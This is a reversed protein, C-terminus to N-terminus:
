GQRPVAARVLDPSFTAIWRAGKSRGPIPEQRIKIPGTLTRIAEAAVPIEQNLTERLTSLYSMAKDLSLPKVPKRNQREADRIKVLLENVEKQLEKIRRDYATCLEKRPEDEVRAVLEQDEGGANSGESEDASSEGAAQPSGGGPRRQGQGGIGQSPSGHPDCWAFLGAPEEIIKVSKSSTLSCGHTGKNGSLCGMQKYQPTSRILKLEGDNEGHDRSGCFECFLTGSFLTTPSVQNRSRKRGTIPSARRIAALKRRAARWMEMPVIALDPRYYVVWESRPNEIVIWKESDPDIRPRTRNWIFM